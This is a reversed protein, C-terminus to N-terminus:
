LFRLFFLTKRPTPNSGVRIAGRSSSDRAKFWEAMRADISSLNGRMWM